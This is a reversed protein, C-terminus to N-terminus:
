LAAPEPNLPNTLKNSDNLDELAVEVREFQFKFGAETLKAPVVCRSKLILETETKILRAGLELIPQPLSLRIPLHAVTTRLAQMFERNTVPQPSTINVPGSIPENDIIFDLARLYDLEHLWSIFQTGPGLRNVGLQALKKLPVLAGERRSLVIGLRLAVKRVTPICTQYFEREWRQCVEVSFGRGVQGDAETQPAYAHIYYTASSANLWLKPPQRCQSVAQNLVRTSLLRSQMIQRKNQETYRCDVTRGSLNLLVDAGELAAAWNGLNKGDWVLYTLNRNETTQPKRSLVKVQWGKKLFHDTALKGLLGTGGAIIITKM